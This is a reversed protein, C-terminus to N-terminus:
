VGAQFLSPLLELLICSGPTTAKFKLFNDAESPSLAVLSSAEWADCAAHARELIVHAGYAGLPLGRLDLVSYTNWTYSNSERVLAVARWRGRNAATLPVDLALEERLCRCSASFFDPKGLDQAEIGEGFAVAWCSPWKGVTAARQSLLLQGDATVVVTDIGSAAAPANSLPFLPPVDGAEFRELAVASIACAYSYKTQQCHLLFEGDHIDIRVPPQTPGDFAAGAEVRDLVKRLGRRYATGAQVTLPVEYSFDARVARVRIGHPDAAVITLEPHTLMGQTAVTWPAKSGPERRQAARKGDPKKLTTKPPAGSPSATKEM